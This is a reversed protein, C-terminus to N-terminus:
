SSNDLSSDDLYKLELLIRNNKHYSLLELESSNDERANHWLRFQCLPVLFEEPARNNEDQECSVESSCWM